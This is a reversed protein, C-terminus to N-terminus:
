LIASISQVDKFDKFDKVYDTKHAEKEDARLAHRLVPEFLRAEFVATTGPALPPAESFQLPSSPAPAVQPKRPFEPARLCPIPHRHLSPAVNLSM